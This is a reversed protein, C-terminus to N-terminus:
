FVTVVGADDHQQVRPEDDARDNDNLNNDNNKNDNNDDDDNSGCFQMPVIGM